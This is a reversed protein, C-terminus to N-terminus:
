ANPPATGQEFGLANICGRLGFDELNMLYIGCNGRFADYRGGAVYSMWFTADFLDRNQQAVGGLLVLGGTANLTVAMNGALAALHTRFMDRTQLAIPEGAAARAFVEAAAVGAHGGCAQYLLPLGTGSLMAEAEFTLTDAIRTEPWLTAFREFVPVEHAYRPGIAVHGGEGPVVRFQAGDWILAGAGLGTGPGLAVRHGLALPGSDGIPTVDADSLTALSWAAAEFDNIVYVQQADTAALIAGESLLWGGNTLRIEGGIKPGAGACVVAHPVGECGELFTALVQPVTREARMRFDRRQVVTGDAVQAVRMTTGGIDAVLDWM